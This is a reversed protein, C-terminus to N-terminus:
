NNNYYNEVISTELCVSMKKNTYDCAWNVLSRVGVAESSSTSRFIIPKIIRAHQIKKNNSINHRTAIVIISGPSIEVAIISIGSKYNGCIWFLTESSSVMVSAKCFSLLEIYDLRICVGESWTNGSKPPLYCLDDTCLCSIYLKFFRSSDGSLSSGLWASKINRVEAEFLYSILM